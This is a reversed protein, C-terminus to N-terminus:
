TKSEHTAFMSSNYRLALQQTSPGFGRELCEAVTVSDGDRLRALTVLRVLCSTLAVLASSLLNALSSCVGAVPQVFGPGVRLELLPEILTADRDRRVALTVLHEGCDTVVGIEGPRRTSSEDVM